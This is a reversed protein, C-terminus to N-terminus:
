FLKLESIFTLSDFKFFLKFKGCLFLMYTLRLADFGVNSFDFSEGHNFDDAKVLLSFIICSIEPIAIVINKNTFIPNWKPTIAEKIFSVGVGICDIQPCPGFHM